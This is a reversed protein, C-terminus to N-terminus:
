LDLSIGDVADDAEMVDASIKNAKSVLPQLRQVHGQARKKYDTEEDSYLPILKQWCTSARVYDKANEAVQAEGPLVRRQFCKDKLSKHLRHAEDYAKLAKKWEKALRWGEAITAYIDSKDDDDLKTDKVREELFQEGQEVAGGSVHARVTAAIAEYRDKGSLGSQKLAQLVAKRAEALQADTYKEMCKVNTTLARVRALLLRGRMTGTVDRRAIAKDIVQLAAARDLLGVHIKAALLTAQVFDDRTTKADALLRGLAELALDDRSEDRSTKEAYAFLAAAGDAATPIKQWRSDPPITAPPPLSGDPDAPLEGVKATLRMIWKATERRFADLDLVLEPDQADQWVFAERGLRRTAADKSALARQAQRRLLTCYRVDDLGERVAEWALTSVLGDVTRYIIGFRCYRDKQIFDNWRNNDMFLYEDLGDYDAYWYRLGKTRRWVDPNELGTFPGAYTVVRGGEGGGHWQWATKHDCGNPIDNIDTFAACQYPNGYDTWTYGGFEHVINWFGYGRQTTQYSCEDSNNYFSRHHGLYKDLIANRTKMRARFEALLKAYEEPHEEPVLEPGSRNDIFNGGMVAAGNNLVDTPMGEQRAILLSRLAYDDTSDVTLEGFERLDANHEAMNRLITRMKREATDLRRSEKVLRELSPTGMWYSFYPASTDYHTRPRPLAFPYVGLTVGLTKVTKAAGGKPRSVLAVTGKYVGAKADKPVKWTVLYQQRFDAKLDFPVFKAADRVPELGDNFPPDQERQTVDLYEVGDAYDVRLYNVKNTWDVRILGDDHLVLNNIPAPHAQDGRWWSMWRGGPRFWVKVSAVDAADAPITAGNAGALASVVVDVNPVDADSKVVFSAAEFEGRAAMLSLADAVVGGAPDADPLFPVTSWPDVRFVTLAALLVSLSM